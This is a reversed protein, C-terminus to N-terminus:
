VDSAHSKPQGESPKSRESAEEEYNDMSNAENEEKSEIGTRNRETDQIEQEQRGFEKELLQAM